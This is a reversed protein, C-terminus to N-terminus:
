TFKLLIREVSLKRGQSRLESFREAALSAQTAAVTQEYNVQMAAGVPDFEYANAFFAELTLNATELLAESAGILKAAEEPKQAAQAVATLGMLSRVMGPERQENELQHFPRLSEVFYQEATALDGQQLYVMGLMHSHQAFDLRNNAERNIELAEKYYAVAQEYEKQLYAVEGQLSRGIGVIFRDGIQYRRRDNDEFYKKADQLRGQQLAIRGLTSNAAGVNIIDKVKLALQICRKASAQATAYDKQRYTIHGHWFFAQALGQLDELQIFLEISEEVRMRAQPLDDQLAAALERLAPALAERDNLQRLLDVSQSLNTTAIKYESQFFAIRGAEYLAKGRLSPYNHTDDQKLAQELWHSGEQHYVRMHWFKGLAAILRLYIELEHEYSWALAARLDDQVSEIKSLWFVQQTSNYFTRAQEALGMFYHAHRQRTAQETGRQTLLHLSYERITVLLRFQPEDRQRTERLLSSNLLSEIGALVSLNDALTCIAEAAALTFRGVFVALQELLTQEADILLAYSWDLTAQLTQQREPLDRAGQSHLHVAQSWHALIQEPSLLRSRAAVLEIALPLGDLRLCIDAVATVNDTTLEFDSKVAQAREAFLHIAENKLLQHLSPRQDDVRRILPEVLYAHEGSLRLLVRSTVLVTLHPASRLLSSVLPSAALLHEFNDLVLLLRKNHLFAQLQSLVPENSHLTVQLDEAIKNAVLSSDALSALDIFFVGHRFNALNLYATEIALRTKGIGGPGILTLLRNDPQALQAQLAALADSRGILRTVPLPLNHPPQLQALESSLREKLAATQETELITQYLAQTATEPEIALHEALQQRCIAFQQLAESRKGTWALLLIIQRHSNEDWPTLQLLYRGNEIAEEYYGRAINQALLRGLVAHGRQRWREQEGLLWTEFELNDALTIGELFNGNVLNAAQQWHQAAEYQQFQYIDVATDASPVFAVEVRSTQWCKPLIQALNHLERRLNAKGVALTENPWFFTALFDRSIARQEVTLYGLLAMTRQSRFRPLDGGDSAVRVTGLLQLAFRNM